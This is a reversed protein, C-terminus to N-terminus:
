ESSRSQIIKHLENFIYDRYPIDQERAQEKLKDRIDYLKDIYTVMYWKVGYELNKFMEVLQDSLEQIPKDPYRLKMDVYLINYMVCLGDPFEKPVIGFREQSTAISQIGKEPNIKEYPIIKAKLYVKFYSALFEHLRDLECGAFADGLPEFHYFTNDKKDYLLHNIHGGTKKKMLKVGVFFFRTNSKKIQPILDEDVIFKKEKCYFQIPTYMKERYTKSLFMNLDKHTTLLYYFFSLTYRPSGRYTIDDLIDVVDIFPLKMKNDKVLMEYDAIKTCMNEKSYNHHLNIKREKALEKLEKITWANNYISKDPGCIRQNIFRYHGINESEVLDLKHCLREKSFSKVKDSPPKGNKEKYLKYLQKRSYAKPYKCSKRPGCIKETTIPETKCYGRSRSRSRSKKKNRSLSKQKSM